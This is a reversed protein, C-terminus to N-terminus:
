DELGMVQIDDSKGVPNYRGIFLWFAFNLFLAAVLAAWAETHVDRYWVYRRILEGAVLMLLSVVLRRKSEARQIILFITSLFFTLLVFIGTDM